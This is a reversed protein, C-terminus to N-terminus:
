AFEQRPRWTVLRGNSTTEKQAPSIKLARRAASGDRSASSALAQNEDARIAAPRGVPGGLKLRYQYHKGIYHWANRCQSNCYRALKNLRRPIEADCYRCTM